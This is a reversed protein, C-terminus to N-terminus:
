DPGADNLDNAVEITTFPKLGDKLMTGLSVIINSEFSLFSFLPQPLRSARPLLSMLGAVLMLSMQNEEDEAPEAFPGIGIGSSAPSFIAVSQGLKTSSNPVLARATRKTGTTSVNSPPFLGQAQRPYDQREALVTNIELDDAERLIGCFLGLFVTLVVALAIRM